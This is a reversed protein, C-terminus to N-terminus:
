REIKQWEYIALGFQAMAVFVADNVTFYGDMDFDGGVCAIDNQGTEGYRLRMRAVYVADGLTTM